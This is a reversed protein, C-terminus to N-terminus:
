CACASSIIHFYAYVCIYMQVKMYINVNMWVCLLHELPPRRVLLAQLVKQDLLLLEILRTYFVEDCPSANTYTNSKISHAHTNAHTAKQWASATWHSVHLRPWTITSKLNHDVQSSESTRFINNHSTTTCKSSIHMCVYMCVFASMCVYMCVHMYVYMCVYLQRSEERGFVSIYIFMLVHMCSHINVVPELFSTTGTVGEAGFVSVCFFM